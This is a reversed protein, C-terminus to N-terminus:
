GAHIALLTEVRAVLDDPTFPKELFGDRAPDGLVITAESYGSVFLVRISPRVSRVREALHPGSMGPMVVDTVLLEVDGEHREAALLGAAGNPAEIVVHGRGSIVSSMLRLVAPDDDVVLVTARRAVPPRGVREPPEEAVVGDAAPLYIRFTTGVSRESYVSVHGGSQRVIGYVTALGLGTGSGVPKTTFFPEFLHERAEDTLGVGEDSVAIVGYTGAGVGPHSRAYPEDLEVRATEVLLTGGEPMADRGNIALNLVVQELQSRDVRVAGADPDLGVVLSVGGGLLRDLMGRFDEVVENLSVVTPRLAQRRSFALLQRTLATARDAAHQIQSADDHRPDATDTAEILLESYGLIATLLNNFDHALGGALRGIAEMKQSQRLQSELRVEHSVDRLIQAVGILREGDRIPAVSLAVDLVRGDRTRRRTRHDYVREERVVREALERPEDELDPPVVREIPRGVVEDARWGFLREAGASWGTISGALTTTLYALDAHALIMSLREADRRAQKVASVDRVVLLAAPRRDWRVAHVVLEIEIPPEGTRELQWDGAEGRDGPLLGAITARLREREHEPWLALIDSGVVPGREGGLMGLAADNADLVDLRERDVVLIPQPHERFLVDLLPSDGDGIDQAPATRRDM